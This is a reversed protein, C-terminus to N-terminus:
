KPISSIRIKISYKQSNMATNLMSLLHRSIKVLSTLQYDYQLNFKIEVCHGANLNDAHIANLIFQKIEAEDTQHQIYSLEKHITEAEKQKVEREKVEKVEEREKVELVEERERPRKRSQLYTKMDETKSKRWPETWGHEKAEKFLESRSKKKPRTASAEKAEDYYKQIWKQLFPIRTSRGKYGLDKAQKIMDKQLAEKTEM